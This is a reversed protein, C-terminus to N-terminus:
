EDLISNQYIVTDWFVLAFKLRFDLQLYATFLIKKQRLTSQLHLKPRGNVSM